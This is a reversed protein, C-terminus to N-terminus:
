RAARGLLRGRSRSARVAAARSSRRARASAAVSARAARRRLSRSRRRRRRRRAHSRHVACDIATPVRGGALVMWALASGAAIYLAYSSDGLADAPAALARSAAPRPQAHAGLRHRRLAAVAHRQAADHVPHARRSCCSPSPSSRAAASSSRPSARAARRPAARPALACRARLRLLVRALARLAHVQPDDAVSGTSDHDPRFGDPQVLTYLSRCRSGAAGRRPSCPSSRARAARCCGTVRAPLGVYFWM